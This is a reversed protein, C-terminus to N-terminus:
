RRRPIDVTGAVNAYHISGSGDRPVRFDGRLDRVDITGSSDEITVSGADVVRVEGSGDDVFVDGEVHRIEIEGSGDDIDVDGRVNEVYIPGSGDEIEVRGAVDRLDIGGSGDDIRVDGRIDVAEISGSGDHIVLAGVGSVEIFGSGDDIGTPMGAPVVVALNISAYRNDRWGRDDDPYFTDLILREGTRELRVDLERLLDQDSACLEAEVTVGSAGERGEVRLSGSGSGVAFMGVGETAADLTRVSREDCQEPDAMRDMADLDLVHADLGELARLSGELHDFHDFHDALRAQASVVRVVPGQIRSVSQAHVPPLHHGQTLVAIGGLAIAAASAIIIKM